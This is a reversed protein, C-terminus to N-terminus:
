KVKKKKGMKESALSAEAKVIRKVDEETVFSLPNWINIYKELVKISDKRAFNQMEHVLNKMAEKIQFLDHKLEKLDSDVIRLETHIKKWEDIMNQNVILLREGQGSYKSELSRIRTNLDSIIFQLDAEAM